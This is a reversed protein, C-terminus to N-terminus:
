RLTAFVCCDANSAGPWRRLAFAGFLGINAGLDLIRLPRGLDDLAEGVPVPTEYVREILIEGVVNVDPTGHRVYVKIASNRLVYPRVAVSGGIERVAFLVPPTFARSFIMM